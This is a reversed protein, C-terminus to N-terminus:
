LSTYVTILLHIYTHMPITPILLYTLIDVLIDLYQMHIYTNCTYTPIYNHEPIAHIHLYQLYSYAHCYSYTNCTHAPIAPILLYTMIHLYQIYTYTDAPVEPGTRDVYRCM